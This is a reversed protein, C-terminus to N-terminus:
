PGLQIFFGAREQSSRRPCDIGINSPLVLLRKHEYWRAFRTVALDNKFKLDTVSQKLTIFIIIAVGHNSQCCLHTKNTHQRLELNTLPTLSKRKKQGSFNSIPKAEVPITLRNASHGTHVVQVSADESCNTEREKQRCRSKKHILAACHCLQITVLIL